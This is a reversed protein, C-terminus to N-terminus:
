TGFLTGMIGGLFETLYDTGKRYLRYITFTRQPDYAGTWANTRGSVLDTLVIAAVVSYTMGNGSFATALYRHPGYSGIFPLGDLSEIIPGHWRSTITHPAAALIKQLRRELVHMNRTASFPIDARHDAGGLIIRAGAGDRDVRFYTYPNAQDWYLADPLDTHPVHAELV